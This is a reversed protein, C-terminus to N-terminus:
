GVMCGSDTLKGTKRDWTWDREGVSLNVCDAEITITVDCPDTLKLMSLVRDKTKYVESKTKM